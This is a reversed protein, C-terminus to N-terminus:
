SMESRISIFACEKNLAEIVKAGAAANMDAIVVRAGNLILHTAIGLGIGASLPLDASPICCSSFPLIFAGSAGGTVIATKGAYSM